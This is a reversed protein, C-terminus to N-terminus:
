CALRPGDHKKRMPLTQLASTVNGNENEIKEVALPTQWDLDMMKKGGPWQCHKGLVRPTKMKELKEIAPTAARDNLFALTFPGLIPANQNFNKDVDRIAIIERTFISTPFVLFFVNWSKKAGASKDPHWDLDTIKKTLQLASAVNKDNLFKLTFCGSVPANQNFNKDVDRIAIIETTFISTPFVLFFVIWSKKTGASKDPHWDLDTVKKTPQLASAVNESEIAKSKNQM